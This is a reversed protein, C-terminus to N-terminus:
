PPPASDGDLKSGVTKMSRALIGLLVLAALIIAGTLVAPHNIWSAGGKARYAGRTEPPGMAWEAPQLGQRVPALVAALDYAPAKMEPAGYFLRYIRGTEALMLLRYVPGTASFKVAALPPNDGNSVKVRIQGARQEPFDISLALEAYGPLDVSVLRGSAFDRWGTVGNEVSPVLVTGHRSFNKTDTALTLRNMPRRGTDLTFETAKEPGLEARAPAPLDWSRGIERSREVVTENRWFAVSDIRFPTRLMEQTQTEAGADSGGRQRVLRVLPQARDVSANAISIRFRRCDGAPLAVETRRVDLYRTYDLIEAAAVLPRWTAGDASGEVTVARVFDRLPTRIDFGDARGGEETLEFEAEIRNGPLEKLAVARSAVARRVVRTANTTVKEVACPVELGRDDLVRLDRFEDASAAMVPADLVVSVVETRGAAVGQLDRSFPFDDPGPAGLALLPALVLAAPTLRRNM